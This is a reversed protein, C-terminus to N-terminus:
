LTNPEFSFMKSSIKGNFLKEVIKNVVAAEILNRPSYGKDFNEKGKSVNIFSYTGFMNEQLFCKEYSKEKVNPADIIQKGYFVENPFSSISPHMRYQTKLLHKKKGLNALREFM